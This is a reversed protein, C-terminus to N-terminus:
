GGARVQMAEAFPIGHLVDDAEAQARAEDRDVLVVERGVGRMTLAFTATSGVFGTGVIGVKM